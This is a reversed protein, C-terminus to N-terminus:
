LSLFIIYIKVKTEIAAVGLKECFFSLNLANLFLASVISSYSTLLLFSRLTYEETM